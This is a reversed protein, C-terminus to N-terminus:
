LKKSIINLYKNKEFILYGQSNVIPITVISIM